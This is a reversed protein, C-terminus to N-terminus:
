MYELQKDLSLSNGLLQEDKNEEDKNESAAAEENDMVRIVTERRELQDFNEEEEILGSFKPPASSSVGGQPEVGMFRSMQDDFSLCDDDGDDESKNDVAASDEECPRILM